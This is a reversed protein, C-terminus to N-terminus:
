KALIQMRPVARQVRNWVPVVLWYSLLLTTIGVAFTPWMIWHGATDIACYIPEISFFYMDVALYVWISIASIVIPIGIMVIQISPHSRFLLSRLMIALIPSILIFWAWDTLVIWNMHQSPKFDGKVLDSGKENWWEVQVQYQPNLTYDGFSARFYEPEAKSYVSSIHSAFPDLSAYATSQAMGVLAGVVGAMFLLLLGVWSTAMMTHKLKRYKWPQAVIGAPQQRGCEPCRLAMLHYEAIYTVQQQSVDYQCLLCQQVPKTPNVVQVTEDM